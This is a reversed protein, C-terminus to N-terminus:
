SIVNNIWKKSKMRHICIFIKVLEESLILTFVWMLPLKWVFAGLLGLPIGVAWQCFMDLFLVFRTDGGSRLVGIIVTVNVAKCLLLYLFIKYTRRAISLTETSMSSYLGLYLERGFYFLVFLVIGTLLGIVLFVWSEYWAKKYEKRGLAHGLLIGAGTALGGFFAVSFSDLPGLLTMIALEDSGMRGYIIFYVYVGGAWFLGNLAIPLSMKVLKVIDERIFPSKLSKLKLIFSSNYFKVIFIIIITESLCSIMTAYAAGKLGMAPFGFNGFILTYNLLVNIAVGIFSIVTCKTAQDTTRLGVHLSMSFSQFILNFAIIKLYESGYSIVELDKSAFAVIEEPFLRLLTVVPITFALSLFISLLINKSINDSDKKGWYQAALIGVGGTLGYLLILLVFFPKGAAGVAAVQTVGLKGIMITDILNRSSNLLWQLTAPIAVVAVRKFFERNATNLLQKIM